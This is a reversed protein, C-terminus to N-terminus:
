PRAGKLKRVVQDGEDADEGNYCTGEFTEGQGLMCGDDEIGRLIGLCVDAQDSL